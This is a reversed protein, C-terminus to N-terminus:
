QIDVLIDLTSPVTGLSAVLTKWIVVLKQQIDLSPELNAVVNAVLMKKIAVLTLSHGGCNRIHEADWPPWCFM